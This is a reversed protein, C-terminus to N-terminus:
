AASSGDCRRATEARAYGARKARDVASLLEELDFPKALYRPTGLEEASRRANEAAAMVLIRLDLGRERAAQAFRWGDLVPMRMDLLVLSPVPTGDLADLAEKGNAATRVEYGELELFEGITALISADDDVVLVYEKAARM